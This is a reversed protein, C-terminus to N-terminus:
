NEQCSDGGQKMSSAEAQESYWAVTRRLGEALSVHPEYHLVQRAKSIDARSHRVDGLRPPAFRPEIRRGFIKALEELLELLTISEGCAINVVQGKLDPSRGALLNAEVVNEVYTFDRSQLGDGYVVPPEGSLYATIFKPIVAAYQSTPDQRPGFVNFYRLSITALGYCEAFARCLHEGALKGAAYPSLPEPAQDERKPLVPNNGYASSSASYIVRAVGASRAAELVALTGEVAVSVVTAPEEISRPVSPIAAVHYVTEVGHCAQEMLKRNRIDGELFEIADLVDLLNAESGTSLDDIVRVRQGRQLLARVLNSGIFGAGGTVLSLPANM